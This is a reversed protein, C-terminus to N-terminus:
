GRPWDKRTAILRFRNNYDKLHRGVARAIKMGEAKSLLPMKGTMIKDMKDFDSQASVTFEDMVKRFAKMCHRSKKWSKFHRNSKLLMTMFERVRSKTKGRLFYLPMTVYMISALEADLEIPHQYYRDGTYRYSKILEPDIVRKIDVAHAVEHFLIMAVIIRQCALTESGPFINAINRKERKVKPADARIYILDEDAMYLGSATGVAAKMVNKGVVKIVIDRGKKQGGLRIIGAKRSSNVGVVKMVKVVKEAIEFVDRVVRRSLKIM